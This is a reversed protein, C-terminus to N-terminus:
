RERTSLSRCTINCRFFLYDEAVSEAEPNVAEFFVLSVMSVSEFGDSWHVLCFVASQSASFSSELMVALGVEGWVRTYNEAWCRAWGWQM